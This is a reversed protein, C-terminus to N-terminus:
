EWFLVSCAFSSCRYYKCLIVIVREIQSILKM